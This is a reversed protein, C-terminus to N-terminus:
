LFAFVVAVLYAYHMWMTRAIRRWAVRWIGTLTTKHMFENKTQLSDLRHSDDSWEVPMDLTDSMSSVPMCDFVGNCCNPNSYYHYTANCNRYAGDDVDDAMCDMHCKDDHAALATADAFVVALSSDIRVPLEMPLVRPLVAEIVVLCYWRVSMLWDTPITRDCTVLLQTLVAALRFAQLAEPAM